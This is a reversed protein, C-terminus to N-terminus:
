RFCRFGQAISASTLNAKDFDFFINRIKRLEDVMPAPPVYSHCCQANKEDANEVRADKFGLAIADQAAKNASAQDKFGTLYYKYIQGYALDEAVKLGKFHSMPVRQNYAAVMVMYNQSYASVHLLVSFLGIILSFLFRNNM